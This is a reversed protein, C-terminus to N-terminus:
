KNSKKHKHTHYYLFDNRKKLNEITWFIMYKCIYTSDSQYPFNPLIYQFHDHMTNDYSM